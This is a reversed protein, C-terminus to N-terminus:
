GSESVCPLGPRLFLRLSWSAWIPKIYRSGEPGENTLMYSMSSPLHLTEAHMDNLNLAGRVNHLVGQKGLSAPDLLKSKLKQGDFRLGVSHIRFGFGGRQAEAFGDM